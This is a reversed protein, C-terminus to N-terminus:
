QAPLLNDKFIQWCNDWTWKMSSQQVIDRDLELCRNIAVSLEEHMFGTVGPEIIDIPGTVPYAACPTGTSLAEIIVLGFTDSRSPFAFVDASAYCNALAEGQRYGLFQVQPYKEKLRIRDPGDGVVRIDYIEHLECLADINKEKSVRGVYLVVPKRDESRHQRNATPRLNTRDVGRTWTRLEKNFGNYQLDNVMSQTTTLIRGSHNHFWRMYAYTISTPIGYNSKLMEPFKTHYSTNYILKNSWCYISAAVGIPGETAIHIHHPNIEKIIGGIDWPWSLKVEPYGPCDIYKFYTPNLYIIEYGDAIAYKEINKFTTVVGNVQDPLNDTVILIKQM